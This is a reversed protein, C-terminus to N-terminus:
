NFSLVNIDIITYEIKILNNYFFIISKSSYNENFLFNLTINVPLTTMLKNSVLIMFQM